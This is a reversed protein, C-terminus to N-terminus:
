KNQLAICTKGTRNGKRSKLHRRLQQEVKGEGRKDRQYFPIRLTFEKMGKM